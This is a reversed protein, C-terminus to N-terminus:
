KKYKCTGTKTDWTGGNKACQDRLSQNNNRLKLQEEVSPESSAHTDAKKEKAKKVPDTGAIMSKNIKFAM